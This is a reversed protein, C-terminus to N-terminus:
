KKNQERANEPNEVAGRDASRDAERRLREEEAEREVTRIFGGIHHSLTAGLIVGILALASLAGIALKLVDSM